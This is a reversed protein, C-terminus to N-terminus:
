SANKNVNMIGNKTDTEVEKGKGKTGSGEASGSIIQIRGIFEQKLKNFDHLVENTQTTSVTPNEMAKFFQEDESSSTTKLIVKQSKLSNGILMLNKFESYTLTPPDDHIVSSLAPWFQIMIGASM